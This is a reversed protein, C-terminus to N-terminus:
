RSRSEVSRMKGSSHWTSKGYLILKMPMEMSAIVYLNNILNGDNTHIRRAGIALLQAGLAAGSMSSETIEAHLAHARDHFDPRRTRDRKPGVSGM